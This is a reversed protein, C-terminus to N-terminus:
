TAVLNSTLRHQMVVTAGPNQVGAGLTPDISLHSLGAFKQVQSSVASGLGQVLASQAGLNGLTAPNGGSTESTHGFALLNIIDAHPLPPDSTFTTKLREMPGQTNPSIDYQDIKPKVQANAIPDIHRPTFLDM